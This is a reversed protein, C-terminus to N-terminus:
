KMRHARWSAAWAVVAVLALWGLPSDEVVPPADDDLIIIDAGAPSGIVAGASVNHLRLWVTEPSEPIRDDVINVVVVKRTDQAAFTLTGGTGTFDSAAATGPTIEYDVNFARTLNGTRLVDLRVGGGSEDIRYVAHEVRVVAPDDVPGASPLRLVAFSPDSLFTDPTPAPSTLRMEVIAVHTDARIFPVAVEAEKADAAFAVDLTGTADPGGSGAQTYSLRVSVATVNEGVREITVPVTGATGSADNVTDAFRFGGQDDLIRVVVDDQDAVAEPRGPPGELVAEFFEDDEVKDDDFIRITVTASEQFAVFEVAYRKAEFDVNPEALRHDPQNHHPITVVYVTERCNMWFGVKTITLEFEAEYEWVDVKGTTFDYQDQGFCSDGEQGAGPAVAFLAAAILLVPLSRM